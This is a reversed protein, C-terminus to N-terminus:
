REGNASEKALVQRMKQALDAKRYPKAILVISDDAAGSQMIANNTYGSTYLIKLSPRMAYAQQALEFGNTGGPLVVDTFLVDIDTNANLIDLATSADGALVTRYGLGNLVLNTLNRVDENDEVVLVREGGGLGHEAEPPPTIEETAESRDRPLYLKVTTGIGEESDIQAHGQSQKVFGYVMPLGLGSGQGIPKTTFFPEFARDRVEPPMGAGTDTVSLMVYEGPRVDQHLAAYIKDLRVNRTELTLRGGRPMADRANLALNLLANELGSPDIKTLWLDSALIMDLSVTPDLSRRLLDSMESVLHNVQTLRPELPQKRAFALLRQTLAAGRHAATMATQIHRQHETDDGLDESLLEINGLIIALLNNFDHAIGGTLQGLALLKDSQRLAEETAKQASMDSIFGVIRKAGGRTGALFVGRDAVPIYRGDKRCVRYELSFVDQAMVAQARARVFTRRDSPHILEMWDPLGELEKATYGLILDTEGDWKVTDDLTNWDYLIQRSAKIAAEFSAKTDQLEVTSLQLAEETTQRQTIDSFTTVFGGQPM